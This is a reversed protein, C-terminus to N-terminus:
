SYKNLKKGKSLLIWRTLSDKLSFERQFSDSIYIMLKQKLCCPPFRANKRNPLYRRTGPNVPGPIDSRVRSSIDPLWGGGRGGGWGWCFRGLSQLCLPNPTLLSSKFSLLCDLFRQAKFVLKWPIKRCQTDNQPMRFKWFTTKKPATLYKHLNWISNKSYWM